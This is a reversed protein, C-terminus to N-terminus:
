SPLPPTKVACSAVRFGTVLYQPVNLPESPPVQFRCPVSVLKEPENWPFSAAPIRSPLALPECTESENRPEKTLPCAVPDIEAADILPDHCVASPLYPPVHDPEGPAHTVAPPVPLALLERPLFPQQLTTFRFPLCIVAHQM